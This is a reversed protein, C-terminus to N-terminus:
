KTVFSSTLQLIDERKLEKTKRDTWTILQYFKGHSDYVALNYYLDAGNMMGEIEHMSCMMGNTLFVNQSQSYITDLPYVLNRACFFAYDELEYHLGMSQLSDKSENLCIFYLPTSNDEYQISAYEHLDKSKRLGPPIDLQHHTDVEIKKWKGPSCGSVMFILLIFSAFAETSKHM